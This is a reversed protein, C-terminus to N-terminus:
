IGLFGAWEQPTGVLHTVDRMKFQRNETNQAAYTQGSMYYVHGDAGHVIVDILRGPLNLLYQNQPLYLLLRASRDLMRVAVPVISKGTETEFQANIQTKKGSFQFIQDCNYIGFRKLKLHMANRQATPNNGEKDQQLRAMRQRWNEFYRAALLPDGALGEEVLAQYRAAMMPRNAEFYDLWEAQDMCWEEPAQFLSATQLFNRWREISKLNGAFRLERLRRYEAFVENPDFRTGAGVENSRALRAPVHIEEKEDSFIVDCLAGNQQVIEVRRWVRNQRFIYDVSNKNRPALQSASDSTRAFFCDKFASLESFYGNLDDPFFREKTDKQHVIRIDSRELAKLYFGVSKDPNKRLWVPPHIADQAYERGTLIATQIQDANTEIPSPVCVNPQALVNDLMVDADSLVPLGLNLTDALNAGQVLRWQNTTDSLQFFGANRLPKVPTFGVQYSKGPAVFVDAGSQMVRVEFMGASNFYYVGHQDAYHMPMGAALFDALSRYERFSFDVAGSVPAGDAYVLANPPIEVTNGSSPNRYRLGRNAEFRLQLMPVPNTYFWSARVAKPRLLTADAAPAANIHTLYHIDLSDGAGAMPEEAGTPHVYQFMWFAASALVLVAAAARLILPRRAGMKLRVNNPKQKAAIQDWIDPDAHAEVGDLQKRIFQEFDHLPKDKEM